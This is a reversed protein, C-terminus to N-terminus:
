GKDVAAAAVCGGEVPFKRRWREMWGDMWGNIGGLRANDRM